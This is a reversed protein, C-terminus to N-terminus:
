REPTREEAVTLRLEFVFGEGWGDSFNAIHPLGLELTLHRVILRRVESSYAGGHVILYRVGESRLYDIASADPFKELPRLRRTYSEPYYGSYGNLIPMWHFTSMYLYRSELGPLRHPFPMPFEAVVGRPQMALWRYLPPPENHFPVLALPAVWYELLLVGVIASAFVQRLRPAMSAALAAYGRAALAGLFLLCFISARAPARLGRFVGVHEHLFPYLQGYMGLSIEFALVLGLVYAIATATPPVLLLGILALLLPLVGPFLQREPQGHRSGYVLNSNTAMRYDRPRASFMTIEHLHRTGVRRSADVYPRSYVGAVAGAIVGGIALSRLTIVLRRGPLPSLQALAVVVILISLFVGYYISSLVQLAVFVGTLVGFRAAGTEVTRQLAWFAWPMWVAWQLEMHMYHDFRYPAFAFVIGAAVGGAASGSFHRAFVFMGIGSAAIAGLLMLNHVLVPPLGAWILPTALAGEVLMADSYALVGREPYFQNGNFLDAPSSALARAIWELRWLNFYVDQHEAAHTGIVRAQPWTMVATLAVFLATVGVRRRWASITGSTDHSTM